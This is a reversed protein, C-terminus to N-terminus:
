SLLLESDRIDSPMFLFGRHMGTCDLQEQGFCLCRFFPLTPYGDRHYRGNYLIRLFVDDLVVPVAASLGLHRTAMGTDNTFPCHGASAIIISSDDAGTGCVRDRGHCADAIGCAAPRGITAVVDM